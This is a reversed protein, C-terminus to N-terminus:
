RTNGALLSEIRKLDAGNVLQGNVFLMPTGQVGLEQGLKVGADLRATETKFNTLDANSIPLGGRDYKGAFVERFAKEKDKSNLIFVSKARSDPHIKDLPYLFVHRTVDTRRSLFEDVKRCYPCDPDTFEIITNHGSGIKVAKGLPMNNLKEAAAKERAAEFGRKVVQQVEGTLNNGNKDVIAGFVLHGEGAPSFYFVNPGAIIEYLGEIPSPKISAVKTNRLIAGFRAEVDAPTPTKSTGANCTGALAMAFVVGLLANMKIRM